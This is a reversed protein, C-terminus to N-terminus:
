KKSLRGYLEEVASKEVILWRSRLVEYVNVGEVPLSVVESLNRTARQVLKAHETISSYVLLCKESGTVGSLFVDIEKTKGSVWDLSEVVLLRSNKIRNSLVGALAARKVQKNARTEFSTPTPGHAVGGGVWVPSSRTGARARGSGKQRWPKKNSYSVESRSLVKRTGARRNGLQWKVVQHIAELNPKINLLGSDLVFREGTRGSKDILDAQLESSM